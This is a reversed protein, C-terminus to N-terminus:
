KTLPYTKLFFKLFKLKKFKKQVQPIGGGGGGPDSGGELMMYTQTSKVVQHIKGIRAEAVANEMSEPFDNQFKGGM